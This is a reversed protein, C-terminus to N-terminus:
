TKIKHLLKLIYINVEITNLGIHVIIVIEVEVM